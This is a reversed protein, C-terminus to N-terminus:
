HIKEEAWQKFNKQDEYFQAASRVSHHSAWSKRKMSILTPKFSCQQMLREEEKYQVDQRLREMRRRKAEDDEYLM